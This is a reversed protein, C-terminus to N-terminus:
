AGQIHKLLDHALHWTDRVKKASVPSNADDLNEAIHWLDDIYIEDASVTREGTGGKCLTVMVPPTDTGASTWANGDKEYTNWDGDLMDRLNIAEDILSLAYVQKTIEAESERILEGYGTFTYATDNYDSTTLTSKYM